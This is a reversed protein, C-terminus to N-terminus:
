KRIRRSVNRRLVWLLYDKSQKFSIPFTRDIDASLLENNDKNSKAYHSSEVLYIGKGAMNLIVNAEYPKMQCDFSLVYEKQKQTTLVYKRKINHKLLRLDVEFDYKSLEQNCLCISEPLIEMFADYKSISVRFDPLRLNVDRLRLVTQYQYQQVDSHLGPDGCNSCVSVKPLVMFKMSEVLYQIYIRKFSSKKWNSVSEPLIDSNFIYNSYWDKFDKWKARSWVNGWYPHQMFYADWGDDVTYFMGRNFECINPSYMCIGAVEDVKEYFRAASICYTIAVPSLYLDDEIFIVHDYEKTQDGVWIFHDKLGLRENHIVVTKKGYNWTYERSISNVETTGGNDISIILDMGEPVIADDLSDLLRRLSGPRNYGAIVIAFENNKLADL